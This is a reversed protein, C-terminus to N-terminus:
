ILEKGWWVCPSQSRSTAKNSSFPLFLSLAAHRLLDQSNNALDSRQKRATREESETGERLSNVAYSQGAATEAPIDRRLLFLNGIRRCPLIWGVTWIAVIDPFPSPNALGEHQVSLSSRRWRAGGRFTIGIAVVIVNLRTPCAIM